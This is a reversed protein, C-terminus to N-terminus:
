DFLSYNGFQDAPAFPQILIPSDLQSDEIKPSVSYAHMDTTPYPMLTELLSTLDSNKDLWVSEAESTLVLPMRPSMPAVVSNAETTLMKFTHVIDGEDNEFEEWLGGFSRVENQSFVLRHAVKGKKSIRKWEYFGDTPIVCRHKILAEQLVPKGVIPECDSYILKQSISRNKAREPLQGWYFYSLGGSGPLLVPLIQTPNANYHPKYGAANDLKFRVLLANPDITITYRETM